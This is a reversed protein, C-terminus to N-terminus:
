PLGRQGRWASSIIGEVPEWLLRAGTKVVVVSYEPQTYDKTEINGRMVPLEPLFLATEQEETDGVSSLM